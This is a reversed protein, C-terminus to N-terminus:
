VKELVVTAMGTGDHLWYDVRYSADGINVPDDEEVGEIDTSAIDIVPRFGIADDSVIERRGFIVRIPVGNILATINSLHDLATHATISDLDDGKKPM